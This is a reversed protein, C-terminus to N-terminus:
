RCRDFDTGGGTSGSRSSCKRLSLRCYCVILAQERPPLGPHSGASLFGWAGGFATKEDSTFLGNKELYDLRDATGGPLGAVSRGSNQIQESTLDILSQLLTRSEGLSSHDKTGDVYQEAADNLHKKAIHINPLGSQTLLAELRSQEEEHSVRGELSVLRM